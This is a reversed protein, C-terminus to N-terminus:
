ALFDSFFPTICKINTLSKFEKYPITTKCMRKIIKMKLSIPALRLGILRFYLSFKAVRM